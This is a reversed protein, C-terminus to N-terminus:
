CVNVMDLNYAIVTKRKVTKIVPSRHLYWSPFSIIDGETVNIDKHNAFKTAFKKSPLEIFYVNAFHCKGHTHWNHKSFDTYIQYWINNLVCSIKRKHKGYTKKILFKMQDELVNKFISMYKKDTDLGWDTKQVQDFTRGESKELLDILKAKINKHNKVKYRIIM